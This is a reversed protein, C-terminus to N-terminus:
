YGADTNIAIYPKIGYKAYLDSLGKKGNFGIWQLYQHDAGIVYMSKDTTTVPISVGNVAVVSTAGGADTAIQAVHGGLRNLM